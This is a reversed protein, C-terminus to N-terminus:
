DFRRDDDKPRIFLENGADFEDLTISLLSYIEGLESHWKKVKAASAVDFADLLGVLRNVPLGAVMAEAVMIEVRESIDALDSLGCDMYGEQYMQGIYAPHIDKDGSEHAVFVWDKAGAAALVRTGTTTLFSYTDGLRKPNLHVTTSLYTAGDVASPFRHGSRLPTAQEFSLSFMAVNNNGM